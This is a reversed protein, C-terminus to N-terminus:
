WQLAHNERCHIRVAFQNDGSNGGGDFVANLYSLEGKESFFHLFITFFKTM